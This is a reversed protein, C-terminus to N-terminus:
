QVQLYLVLHAQTAKALRCSHAWLGEHLPMPSHGQANSSGVLVKAPVKRVVFIQFLEPKQQVLACYFRLLLVVRVVDLREKACCNAKVVVSGMGKIM